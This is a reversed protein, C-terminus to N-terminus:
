EGGGVVPLGQARWRLMGGALNAVQAFLWGSGLLVCAQASRTGSRCVTVVPKSAHRTRLEHVRGQWSREHPLLQRRRARHSGARRQVRGPERVDLGTSGAPRVSPEADDPTM